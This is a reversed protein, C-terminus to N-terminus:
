KRRNGWWFRLGIIIVALLIGVMAIQGIPSSLGTPDQQLLLV